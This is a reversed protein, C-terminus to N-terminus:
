PFRSVLAGQANRVGHADTLTAHHGQDWPLKDPAETAQLAPCLTREVSLRRRM